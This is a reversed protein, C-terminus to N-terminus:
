LAIPDQNRYNYIEAFLGLYDSMQTCTRLSNLKMHIKKKFTEYDVDERTLFLTLACLFSNSRTFTPINISCQIIFEVIGKSLTVKQVIKEVTSQDPFIFRGGKFNGHHSAHRGLIRIANAMKMDHEKCFKDLKIYNQNGASVYYNGWDKAEWRKQSNNLLLIDETKCDEKIQYWVDVLLRKAAELRHQGDVVRMHADVLLPRFQLLNCALISAMIKKLNPEDIERNSEHRKFIDYDNTCLTM